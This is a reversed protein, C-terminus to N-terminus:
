CATLIFRDNHCNYAYKLAKNINIRLGKEWHENIKIHAWISMKSAFHARGILSIILREPVSDRLLERWKKTSCGRYGWYERM